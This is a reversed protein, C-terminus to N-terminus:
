MGKSYGNNLRENLFEHANSARIKKAGGGVLHSALQLRWGVGASSIADRWWFVKTPRSCLKELVDM